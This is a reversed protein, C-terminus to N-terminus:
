TVWSFLPLCVGPTSPTTNTASLWITDVATLVFVPLFTSRDCKGGYTLNIKYKM